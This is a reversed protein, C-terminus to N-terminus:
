TETHACIFSKEDPTTSRRRSVNSAVSTTTGSKMVTRATSAQLHHYLPLVAEAAREQKLLECPPGVSIPRPACFGSVRCSHKAGKANKARVRREGTV